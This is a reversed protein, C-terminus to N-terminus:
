KHFLRIMGYLVTKFLRMKAEAKRKDYCIRYVGEADKNLICDLLEDDKYVPDQRELDALKEYYQGNLIELVFEIKLNTEDADLETDALDSIYNLVDKRQQRLLPLYAKKYNYKEILHLRDIYIENSRRMGIESTWFSSKKGASYGGWRWYYGYYDVFMLSKVCPFVNLHFMLDEAFVKEQPKLGSEILMDRRFLMGWYATAFMNEGFFNVYYKEFPEYIPTNWEGVNQIVKKNYHFSPLARYHNMVVMDLNYEEAPEIMRQLAEPAYWDDGDIFTVYETQAYKLGEMKAKCIGLNVKNDVLRIRKDKAAYKLIIEKDRGPSCDNVCLLEWDEYTQAIVSEILKPIYRESKYFNAIISIKAM